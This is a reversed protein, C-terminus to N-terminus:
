SDKSGTPKAAAAALTTALDQLWARPSVKDASPRYYSGLEAFLARELEEDDPHTDIFRNIQEVLGRLEDANGGENLYLSIVQAPDKAEEPWDQHFYSSFFNQLEEFGRSATM